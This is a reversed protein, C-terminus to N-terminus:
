RAGALQADLALVFTAQEGTAERDGYLVLDFLRAGEAMAEAREPYSTRLVQVVERATVGPSEELRGREVQRAALARFGDVLADSHRQEALAREARDRWQTATTRADTIVPGPAIRRAPASRARTALWALGLVLALGIAMAAFASVPPASSATEVVDLVTRRLWTVFRNLLDDQHYARDLLERRLLGRGEDPSPALPPDAALAGTM